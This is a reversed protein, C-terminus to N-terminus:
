SLNINEENDETTWGRFLRLKVNHKDTKLLEERKGSMILDGVIAITRKSWKVDTVKSHIPRFQYM